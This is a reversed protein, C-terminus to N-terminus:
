IGLVLQFAGDCRKSLAEIQIAFDSFRKVIDKEKGNELNKACKNGYYGHPIPKKSGDCCTLIAYSSHIMDNRLASLRNARDAIWIVEREVDPNPALKSRAASILMERQARDNKHSHWCALAVDDLSGFLVSSFLHGLNEQLDGWAITARGISLALEDM